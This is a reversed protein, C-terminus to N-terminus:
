SVKQISAYTQEINDKLEQSERTLKRVEYQMDELISIQDKTLIGEYSFIDSHNRLFTNRLDIAACLDKATRNKKVEM